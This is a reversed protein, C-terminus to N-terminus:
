APPKPLTFFFTSGKGLESSVHMDGGNQTVFDKCLILGLGTGKEQDTGEATHTEGAKFLKPINEEAIGMGSDEVYFELFDRRDFYGVGVIGGSGTFKIANTLLNRVVTTIMNYDAYVLLNEDLHSILEVGKDDARERQMELNEKVLEHMDFTKPYHTIQNLQSRSWQLLNSLLEYAHRATTYISQHFKKVKEAEIRHGKRVLLDSLGLISNFPNKLDHSIISFFKDRTANAQELERQKTILHQEVEKQRTIDSDVAIIREIEGRNDLIPTLTTQFYYVNGSDRAFSSEFSLTQKESFFQRKLQDISDHTSLEFIDKGTLDQPDKGYLKAVARNVWEIKGNRDALYILNDTESAVISLKRLEENAESLKRSQAAIERNKAKIHENQEHLKQIAKKKIRYLRYMFFLFVLVVVAGIYVVWLLLDQRRIKSEQLQKQAELLKIQEEKKGLRYRTQWKAINDSSQSSYISDDYRDYEKYYYLAKGPANRGEHFRYLEYCCDRILGANGISRSQDLAKRILEQSQKDQGMRGYCKGLLFVTRAAGEVEKIRHYLDRAKRFYDVAQRCNGHQEYLSGLHLNARAIGERREVQSSIDLSRRYCYRASDFVGKKEFITGTISYIYSLGVRDGTQRSAEEARELHNLAHDLSDLECFVIAINSLANILGDKKIGLEDSIQLAKMYNELARDYDGIDMYSNGLNNYGMGLHEQKGLRDALEIYKQTYMIAEPYNDMKSHAIGIYNYANALLFTDSIQNSIDEFHRAYYLASDYDGTIQYVRAIRGYAKAKITDDPEEELIRLAAMACQLARPPDKYKLSRALQQMKDAQQSGKVGKLENEIVDPPIQRASPFALFYFALLFPYAWRFLPM